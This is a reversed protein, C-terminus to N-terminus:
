VPLVLANPVVLTDYVCIRSKLLLAGDKGRVFTDRYSGAQQITPKLDDHLTELLLYNARAAIAGDAEVGTVQVNTVYHRLYRPAYMTTKAIAFARDRLMGAGECYVLGIPLNAEFNERGTITYFCDETFFKPWDMLDGEDLVQCYAAHFADIELRLLQRQLLDATAGQGTTAASLAETTMADSM